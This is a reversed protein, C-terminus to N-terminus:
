DAALLLISFGDQIRWQVGGRWIFRIIEPTCASAHNWKSIATELEQNSWPPGTHVPIGEEVYFHLLSASMHKVEKPLNVLTKRQKSALFELLFPAGNLERATAKAMAM